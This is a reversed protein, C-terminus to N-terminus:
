ISKKPKMHEIQYSVSFFLLYVHTTCKTAITVTADYCGKLKLGLVKLIETKEFYTFKLRYLHAEVLKSRQHNKM